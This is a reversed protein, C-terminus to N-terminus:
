RPQETDIDSDASTQSHMHQIKHKVLKKRQDLYLLNLKSSNSLIGAPWPRYLTGAVESLVTYVTNQPSSQVSIDPTPDAEQKNAYKTTDELQQGRPDLLRQLV